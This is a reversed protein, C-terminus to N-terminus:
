LKLKISFVSEDLHTTIQYKDAYAIDMQRKLDQMNYLEKIARQNSRNFHNRIEITIGDRDDMRIISKQYPISNEKWNKFNSEVFSFIVMPSITVDSQSLNNEIDIITKESLRINELELYEEVASAEDLLNVSEKQGQYLIYDLTDSLREIVEPAKPSESETLDELNRLTALLFEPNIQNRLLNLEAENKQMQLQEVEIIKNYQYLVFEVCVLILPVLLSNNMYYIILAEFNRLMEMFTPPKFGPVFATRFYYDHIYYVLFSFGFIFVIFGIIAKLYKHKYLYRGLLVYLMFYAGIIKFPLFFIKTYIARKLDFGLVYITMASFLIMVVWFMVHERWNLVLVGNTLKNQIKDVGMM